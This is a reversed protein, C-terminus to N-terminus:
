HKLTVLGGSKFAAYVKKLVGAGVKQVASLAPKWNNTEETKITAFEKPDWQYRRHDDTNNSSNKVKTNIGMFEQASRIDEPTSKLITYSYM